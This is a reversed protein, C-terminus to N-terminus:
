YIMSNNNCISPFYCTILFTYSEKTTCGIRKNNAIEKATKRPPDSEM